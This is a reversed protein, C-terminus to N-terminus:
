ETRSMKWFRNQNWECEFQVWIQIFSRVPILYHWSPWEMKKSVNTSVGEGLFATFHETANSWFQGFSRKISLLKGAWHCERSKQPGTEWYAKVTDHKLWTLLNTFKALPDVLLWRHNQCSIVWSGFHQQLDAKWQQTFAQLKKYVFIRKTEYFCCSVLIDGESANDM